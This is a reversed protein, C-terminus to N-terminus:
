GGIIKAAATGGVSPATISWGTNRGGDFTNTANFTAGGSGTVFYLYGYDLSATGSAISITVGSSGSISVISIPLSATGTWTPANTITTTGAVPPFLTTGAALSLSSFTNNGALTTVGRSSNATVSLPGYTRGGGSFARNGSGNGNLVYTATSFDSSGNLNTVTALDWITGNTTTMTFTGTGMLITRAGSGSFSIIGATISPNNASFDLTGTFAGGTIQQVTNTGGISSAVTVTGGGSSGDFIAIDSSGPVSAGGAGGTTTSWSTTNSGDWTGTGGVWFRNAM